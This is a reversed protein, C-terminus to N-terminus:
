QPSIVLNFHEKYFILQLYNTGLGDFIKRYTGDGVLLNDLKATTEEDLTTGQLIECATDHINALVVQSPFLQVILCWM